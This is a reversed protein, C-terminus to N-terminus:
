YTRIVLRRTLKCTEILQNQELQITAALASGRVTIVLADKQLTLWCPSKYRRKVYDRVAQMEDPPTFNKKGLIDGVSDM